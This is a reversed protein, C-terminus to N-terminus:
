HQTVPITLTSTPLGTLNTQSHGGTFAFSWLTVNSGSVFAIDTYGNGDFDGARATYTGNVPPMHSEISVDGGSGPGFAWEVEPLSGPGYFILGGYTEEFFQGPLLQYNGDVKPLVASTHNGSTDFTWFYDNGSPNYFVVRDRPQGVAPNGFHGAVVQYGPGATISRTTHSTAGAGMLWLSDAGSSSYWLIDDRTDGNADLVTPRYTGSINVAVETYPKGSLSGDFLWLHDTASGAAYWLVDDIGNGDFDGVIPDYTGGVSLPITTVSAPISNGIHAIYDAKSGPTYVLLDAGTGSTFTGPRSISGSALALASKAKDRVMAGSTGSTPVFILRGVPPVDAAAPTAGIGVAAALAAAAALPAAAARLARRARSPSRDAM